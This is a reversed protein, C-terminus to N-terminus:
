RCLRKLEDLESDFVRKWSLGAVFPRMEILDGLGLRRARAEVL